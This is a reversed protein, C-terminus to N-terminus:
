DCEIDNRPKIFLLGDWFHRLAKEMKEKEQM